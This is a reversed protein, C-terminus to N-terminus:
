GCSWHYRGFFREADNTLAVLPEEERILQVLGEETLEALGVAIADEPRKWSNRITALSLMDGARKSKSQIFLRLIALAEESLQTPLIM